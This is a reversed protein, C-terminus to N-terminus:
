VWWVRGVFRSHFWEINNNCGRRPHGLSGEWSKYCLKPNRQRIVLGFELSDVVLISSSIVCGWHTVVPRSALQSVLIFQRCELRLFKYEVRLAWYKEWSFQCLVDTPFDRCWHLSVLEVAICASLTWVCSDNLQNYEFQRFLRCNQMYKIPSLTCSVVVLRVRVEESVWLHDIHQGLMLCPFKGCPYWPHSTWPIWLPAWDNEFSVRAALGTEAM